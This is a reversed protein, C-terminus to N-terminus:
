EKDKKALLKDVPPHQIVLTIANHKNEISHVMENGGFEGDLTWPIKKDDNIRFNIKKARFSVFVDKDAGQSINNLSTVIKSLEVLNSPKKILTVEFEGDDYLFDNLSLFGAVSASNTVMGYIYDGTITKETGDIETYDVTMKCSMEAYKGLKSIGNFVYAAHGLINKINQPTEYTIDTFAGFAAVYLFPKDNCVGIDCKIKEGNLFSKAAMEIDLPIGIGRAFDNTSGTPIFGIPLQKEVPAKLVGAIVESFTGDGGSCVIYDFYVKECARHAAFTADNPKLTSYITTEYGSKTFINIITGLRSSIEAKGSNLNVIYYIKKM